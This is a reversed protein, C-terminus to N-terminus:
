RTDRPSTWASPLSVEREVIRRQMSFAYLVEEDLATGSRYVLGNWWPYIKRVRASFEEDTELSKYITGRLLNEDELRM